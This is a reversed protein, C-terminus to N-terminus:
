EFQKDIMNAIAPVTGMPIVTYWGDENYVTLGLSINKQISIPIFGINASYMSPMFINEGIGVYGFITNIIRCIVPYQKANIVPVFTYNLRNENNTHIHYDADDLTILNYGIFAGLTMIDTRLVLGTGAFVNLGSVQDYANGNLTIFFPIHFYENIRLYSGAAVQGLM